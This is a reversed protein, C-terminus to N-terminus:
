IGENTDAFISNITVSYFIKKRDGILVPILQLLPMPHMQMHDM